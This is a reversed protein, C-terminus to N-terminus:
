HVRQMKFSEQGALSHKVNRKGSRQQHVPFSFPKTNTFVGEMRMRNEKKKQLFLQLDKLPNRRFWGWWKANRAYKSKLLLNCDPYLWRRWPQIKLAMYLPSKKEEAFVETMLESTIMQWDQRYQPSLMASTPHQLARKKIRMQHQGENWGLVFCKKWKGKTIKTEQKSVLDMWVASVTKGFSHIVSAHASSRIWIWYGSDPYKLYNCFHRYKWEQFRRTEM